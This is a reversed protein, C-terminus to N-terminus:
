TGHGSMVFLESLWWRRDPTLVDLRARVSDQSLHNPIKIEACALRLDVRQSSSGVTM